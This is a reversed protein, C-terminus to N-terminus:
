REGRDILRPTEKSNDYHIWLDVIPKYIMQFNKWGLDFRRRIVEEPIHHGGQAVRSAVRAIAMEVRPLSLFILKVQYRLAQWQHIKVAYLKGSLTTEFSFSKGQRVYSDMERLMLKGSRIAASEPQFPSLGSAILDANIFVSSDAEKPLFEYAFTTKGVGNSGAIIVIRKEGM